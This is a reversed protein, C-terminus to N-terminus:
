ELPRAAVLLTKVPRTGNAFPWNTKNLAAGPLRADACACTTLNSPVFRVCILAEVKGAVVERVVRALKHSNWVSGNTFLLGTKMAENMEGSQLSPITLKSPVIDTVLSVSVPAPLPKFAATVFLRPAVAAPALKASALWYRSVIEM